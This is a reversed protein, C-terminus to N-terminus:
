HKLHFSHSTLARGFLTLDIAKWVDLKTQLKGLHMHCAFYERRIQFAKGFLSSHRKGKQFIKNTQLRTYQIKQTM